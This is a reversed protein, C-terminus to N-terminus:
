EDEDPESHEQCLTTVGDATSRGALPGSQVVGTWNVCGCKATRVVRNGADEVTETGDFQPRRGWFRADAVSESFVSRM